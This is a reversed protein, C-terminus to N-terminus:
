AYQLGEPFYDDVSLRYIVPIKVAAKCARLVELGM